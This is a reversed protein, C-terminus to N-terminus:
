SARALGEALELVKKPNLVGKFFMVREGFDATKVGAKELNLRESVAVIM